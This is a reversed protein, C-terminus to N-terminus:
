KIGRCADACYQAMEPCEGHERGVRECELACAEITARDYVGCQRAWQVARSKSEFVRCVKQLFGSYTVKHKMQDGLYIARRHVLRFSFARNASANGPTGPAAEQASGGVMHPTSLQRAVRIESSEM